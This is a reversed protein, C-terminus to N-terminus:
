SDAKRNRAIKQRLLYYFFPPDNILYRKWLRRPEHILRWFWELGRHQMWHPARRIRRSIFVFSAGVEVAVPIGCAPLHHDIWQIGKPFGLSTFLIDTKNKKLLSIIRQNEQVDNEFGLHPSFTGSVKLGPYWRQLNRAAGNAVGEQSGLLFVSLGKQAALNCVQEMLDTGNIREPLPTQLFHAAWLLPVGDAVVLAADRFIRKIKASKRVTVLHDVNATIVQCSVGRAILKEIQALVGAMDLSDVWTEIIKIRSMEM